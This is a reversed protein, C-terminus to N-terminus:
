DTAGIKRHTPSPNAVANGFVIDTSDFKEMKFHSFSSVQVDM